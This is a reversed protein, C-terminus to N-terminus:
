EATLTRFSYKEVKGDTVRFLSLKDCTSSLHMHIRHESKGHVQRTAWNYDLLTVDHYMDTRSQRLQYRAEAQEESDFAELIDKSADSYSPGSYLGALMGHTRLQVRTERQAWTRSQLYSIRQAPMEIGRVTSRM